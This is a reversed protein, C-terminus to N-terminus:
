VESENSSWPTIDHCGAARLMTRWARLERDSFEFGSPYLKELSSTLEIVPNESKAWSEFFQHWEINALTRRKLNYNYISELLSFVHWNDPSCTPKLNQQIFKKTFSNELGFLQIGKYQKIFWSIEWVENPSSAVFRKQVKSNQYIELICGNEEITSVFIAPKDLYKNNLSAKYGLGGNNWDEHLSSGIGYIFILYKGIFFSFPFFPVNQSLQSIINKDNWGIVLPGSFRTQGQFISTYLNSVAASSSSEVNSSFMGSTCIFGPAFPNDSNGILITTYFDRENLVVKTTQGIRIPFYNSIENENNDSNKQWWLRSYPGYHLDLLLSGVVLLTVM